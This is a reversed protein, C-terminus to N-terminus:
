EERKALALDRVTVTIRSGDPRASDYTLSVSASVKGQMNERLAVYQVAARKIDDEDLEYTM